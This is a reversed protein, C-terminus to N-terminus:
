FSSGYLLKSWGVYHTTMDKGHFIWDISTFSINELGLFLVSFAIKSSKWIDWIDWIDM